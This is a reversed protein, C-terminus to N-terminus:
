KCYVEEMLYLLGDSILDEHRFGEYLESDLIMDLPYKMKLALSKSSEWIEVVDTVDLDWLDENREYFSEITIAEKKSYGLSLLTNIRNLM